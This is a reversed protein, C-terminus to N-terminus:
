CLKQLTYEKNEKSSWVLIQSLNLSPVPSVDSAQLAEVFTLPSFNASCFSPQDSTKVLAPHSVHSADTDDAPLPFELPRFINKDCPFLGTTWFGNAV